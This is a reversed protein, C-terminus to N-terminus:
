RARRSGLPSSLGAPGAATGTASPGTSAGPPGRPPLAPDGAPFGSRPTPTPRDGTETGRAGRRRRHRGPRPAVPPGTQVNRGTQVRPSAPPPRRVPRQLWAPRGKYWVVHQKRRM